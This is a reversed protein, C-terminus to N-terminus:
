SVESIWCGGPRSLSDWLTMPSLLVPGQWTSCAPLLSLTHSVLKSLLSSHLGHGLPSDLVLSFAGSLFQSLSAFGGSGTESDLKQVPFLVGRCGGIRMPVCGIRM